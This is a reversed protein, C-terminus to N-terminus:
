PKQFDVTEVSVKETTECIRKSSLLKEMLETFFELKFDCL